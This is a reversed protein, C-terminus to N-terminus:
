GGPRPHAADLTQLEEPTLTLSLAVANEKVHAAAGSEPIAIVKGSRITWALAVAAASCRDAKHVIANPM